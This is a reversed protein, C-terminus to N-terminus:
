SLPFTQSEKKRKERWRCRADAVDIGSALDRILQSTPECESFWWSDGALQDRAHQVGEDFSPYHPDHKWDLFWCFAVICSVIAALAVVGIGIAALVYLCVESM